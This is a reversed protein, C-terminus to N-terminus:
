CQTQPYFDDTYTKADCWTELSVVEMYIPIYKYKSFQIKIATILSPTNIYKKGM